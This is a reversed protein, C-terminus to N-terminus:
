RSGKHYKQGDNKHRGSVEHEEAKQKQKNVEETPFSHQQVPQKPQDKPQQNM